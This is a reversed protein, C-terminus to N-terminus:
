QVLVRRVSGWMVGERSSSIVRQICHRETVGAGRMVGLDLLCVGWVEGRVSRGARRRYM